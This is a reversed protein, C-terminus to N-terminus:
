IKIAGEIVVGNFINEKLEKQISSLNNFFHLQIKRELKDEFLDLKNLSEKGGIIAIDIDSDETDYGKSYSGFLIITSGLFNQSLRDNLGSSYIEKLNFLKKLIFIEKDERNLSINLLIKKELNILKLSFLNRVSNSIATQSVKLRTAIEKGNFITTPNRFLFEMILNELKSLKLKNWDM